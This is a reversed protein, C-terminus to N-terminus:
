MGYQWQHFNYQKLKKGLGDENTQNQIINIIDQNSMDKPNPSKAITIQTTNSNNKVININTNTGDM